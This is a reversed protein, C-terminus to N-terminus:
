YAFELGLSVQKREIDTFDFQNFEGVLWVLAKYKGRLFWNTTGDTRPLIAPEIYFQEGHYWRHSIQFTWRGGERPDSIARFTGFDYDGHYWDLGTGFQVQNQGGPIPDPVGDNDADDPQGDAPDEDVFEPIVHIFRLSGVWVLGHGLVQGTDFQAVYDRDDRWRVFGGYSSKRHDKVYGGVEIGDTYQGSWVQTYVQKYSLFFSFDDFDNGNSDRYHDWWFAYKGRKGPAWPTEKLSTRAPAPEAATGAPPVASTGQALLVAAAGTAGDPRAAADAGAARAGSGSGAAALLLMLLAGRLTRAHRMPGGVAREV